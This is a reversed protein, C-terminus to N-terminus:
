LRTDDDPGTVILDDILCAVNPISQLLCDMRRQFIGVAATVGFPLRTYCLLGKTTNITSIEQWSEDLPLQSYAQSLDLKSFRRGGALKAFIEEVKPLPYTDLEM